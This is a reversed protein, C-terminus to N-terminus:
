LEAPCAFENQSPSTHFILRLQENLILCIIIVPMMLSPEDHADTGLYAPHLLLRDPCGPAQSRGRDISSSRSYGPVVSRVDPTQETPGSHGTASAAYVRCSFIRVAPTRGSAEGAVESPGPVPVQSLASRRVLQICETRPRM